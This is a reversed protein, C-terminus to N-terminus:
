FAGHTDIKERVAGAVREFDAAKFSRAAGTSRVYDIVPEVETVRLEGELVETQVASFGRALQSAGNEVSFRRVASHLLPAGTGCGLELVRAGAPIAMRELLWWPFPVSATSFRTHLAIRASLNAGTAYQGTRLHAADTPDHRTM